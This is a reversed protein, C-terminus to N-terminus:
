IRRSYWVVRGIISVLEALVTYQNHNKNDSILVIQPPDSAPVREIRKVVTADSDWIAYIGPKAPNTESRDIMVKDGSWLTPFMSDGEVEAVMLTDPTLRLFETVYRRSFNWVDKINEDNVLYGGGASLRVDYEPILVTETRLDPQPLDDYMLDDDILEYNEILFYEPPCQLAKALRSLNDGRISKKRGALIDSVFNRELGARRAAEFQNIKLKELRQAVRRKLLSEM